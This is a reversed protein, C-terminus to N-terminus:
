APVKAARGAKKAADGVITELKDRLLPPLPRKDAIYRRLTRDNCKAVDAAFRTAPIARGAKKPDPTAAIATKLLDVDSLEAPVTDPAPLTLPRNEEATDDVTPNKPM